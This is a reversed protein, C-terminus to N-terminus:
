EKRLDRAGMVETSVENMWGARQFVATQVKIFRISPLEVVKGLSDVANSIDFSNAGLTSDYDKGTVNKAYGWTFRDNPVIWAGNSNKDFADPLRTGTFTISDNKTAPWWWGATYRSGLESILEGRNGKSDLWTVNTSDDVARYYRVWYNRKSNKYQNGKLEYWTENPKGDGNTDSMVYVVGPEPSNGKLAFIEFDVGDENVVDHDFGAIVYGGFGGLHLCGKSTSPEGIFNAIDTKKAITAQQGPGYVYEFVQSIYATSTDPESSSCSVMCYSFIFFLSLKGIIVSITNKTVM